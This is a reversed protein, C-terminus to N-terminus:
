PCKVTERKSVDDLIRTFISIDTKKEIVPRFCRASYEEGGSINPGTILAIEKFTLGASGDLFLNPVIGRITYVCNKIPMHVLYIGPIEIGNADKWEDNVCVVKMGIRFM